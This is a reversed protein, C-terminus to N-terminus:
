VRYHKLFLLEPRPASGRTSLAMAYNKYSFRLFNEWVFYVLDVNTQQGCYVTTDIGSISVQPTINGYSVTYHFLDVPAENSDLLTFTFDDDIAFNQASVKQFLSYFIPNSRFDTMAIFITIGEFTDLRGAVVLAYTGTLYCCMGYNHLALLLKYIM